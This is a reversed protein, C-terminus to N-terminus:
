LALAGRQQQVKWDFSAPFPIPVDLVVNGMNALDLGFVHYVAPNTLSTRAMEAAVYIRNAATDIVPTSLIGPTLTSGSWGSTQPPGGNKNWLVTGDSQNLAYVTDNLTAAYVIGNYVLPEAYAEGDLGPSVWGAQVSTIAPASPDYGTHGDDHHYMTWSGNPTVAAKPAVLTTVRSIPAHAAAPVATSVLLLISGLVSVRTRM